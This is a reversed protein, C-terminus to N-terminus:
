AAGEPAESPAPAAPPALALRARAPLSPMPLSALGVPLAAVGPPLGPRIRAPLRLRRDGITVDIGDDEGAGLRAADAPALGVYPAPAREAVGPALVSLEESGFVHHAPTLLWEDATPTFAAPPQAYYTPAAGVAPEILRIGPDGGRLPGAVEEQFRNLAQISNWGPAWFRPILPAPPEGHYGEMTFALPSDPDDPPRPEHVSVAAHIATRGSWRGHQRAVKQGAIRFDAPPAVSVAAALAPLERAMAAVVEDLDQWGGVGGIDAAAAVDRLWRWSERVDGGPTLAQYFRQLRGESNVLDGDAEAFTAAPLLLDAGNTTPNGLHDLVITRAAGGLLADAAPADLRRHLDNELVIVTDARGERAAQVAFDLSPAGMLGLGLSNCEPAVFALAAPRGVARLAWAVNAAGRVIPESACGVGTVVLPREAAALARAIREALERLPGPLDPPPPAAPDLTAAAAFALRAIDDPAARYTQAALDDLRTADPTAIFLPGRADQLAERVAYDDWDPIRLKSAIERIPQQRASQRLALALIPATNSVDEGLVLAADCRRVDALSPSRAPGRGLIDLGLATLRAEEESLGSYFREPGVLARLAFNAELSARPSGIGIARGREGLIAAAAKLAEERSVPRAEAGRASRLLPARVRRESNVFEYGYRGRDCLFYSNVQGNYRNRIRRLSDYREGPLTNCGVGCHVCVSPATQLDWKRTYHRALTKDDFVGTPCVEVLNGSFESELTGDAHRGFYVLARIGFADFDRGGAYDRYFRVCRYCQICRNMEHTIFPGLNQNRFTRKRGTFRRYDHGTMVTMDQLHCESGEDCVPCDHPHSLMLWEIVGARFARAEPDEISIRAGDSAPTMCAMVLRGKTDQEDHFQKVACQRCAGVSGMAPHWCFYPLNLGLSLCAALLNQGEPVEFPRGDVIIAPM